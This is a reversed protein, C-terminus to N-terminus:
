ESIPHHRDENSENSQCTRSLESRDLTGGLAAVSKRPTKSEDSLMRRGIASARTSGVGCALQPGFV